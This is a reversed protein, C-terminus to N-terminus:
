RLETVDMTYTTLNVISYGSPHVSNDVKTQKTEKVIQTELFKPVNILVSIVLVPITYACM